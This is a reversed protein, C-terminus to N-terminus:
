EETLAFVEHETFEGSDVADDQIADILHLIGTLDEAREWRCDAEVQDIIELLTLKQKRLLAWDIKSYDLM